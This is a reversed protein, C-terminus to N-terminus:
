ARTPLAAATTPLMHGSIYGIAVQRPGAPSEMGLAGHSRGGRLIFSSESLYQPSAVGISLRTDGRVPGESVAPNPSKTRIGTKIQAYSFFDHWRTSFIPYVLGHHSVARHGRPNRWAHGAEAAVQPDPSKRALRGRFALWIRTSIHLDL